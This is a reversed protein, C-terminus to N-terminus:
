LKNIANAGTAITYAQLYAQKLKSTTGTLKLSLTANHRYSVQAAM